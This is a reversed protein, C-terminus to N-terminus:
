RIIGYTDKIRMTTDAGTGKAMFHKWRKLMRLSMGTLDWELVQDITKFRTTLPAKSSMWDKLFGGVYESVAKRGSILSAAKNELWVKARLAKHKSFVMRVTRRVKGMM